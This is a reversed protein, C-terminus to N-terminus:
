TVDIKGDFLELDFKRRHGCKAMIESRKNLLNKDPYNVIEFKEAACLACRGSEPTFSKSKRLVRWTVSPVGGSDKVRWVETSLTTKNRYRELNFSTKHGNFRKKFTSECLGIYKKEGYDPLDSTLTAEYVINSILCNQNMPCTEKNTCNCTRDDQQDNPSLIAKNHSSIISKMNPM